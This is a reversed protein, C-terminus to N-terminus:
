YSPGTSNGMAWEPFEAMDFVVSGLTNFLITLMTVCMINMVIGAKMMDIARMKSAAVVIANPPTAVPLMFAYSCCLTSPLMLYLPHLRIAKSMEGLVPLFINAVATNSTVETCYTTLFCIVVVLVWPPLVDLVILQQGIWASLGSEKCAKAMAFGGGNKFIWSLFNLDAPLIYMLFLIFMAPTADKIKVGPIFDAWGMIFQPSRFFWLLVLIIFLTLVSGEHFTMPGLEDYKDQILQKVKKAAEPGGTDMGGRFLRMYLIQLWVWAILINILMGPVNFIMWTAFNVGTADPFLSEFIGMFTLNTGTGTVTGTGGINAAYAVGLFYCITENSPRDANADSSGKRSNVTDVIGEEVVADKDSLSVTNVKPNKTCIVGNSAGNDFFRVKKLEKLVAIVIPAMMATTATNSIWMSLFMTTLMFGLMLLGPSTGITLLVKMAIRQHLNCHEIALAMSLGGIFMMNTEKLYSICVEETDLVGLLPFLAVPLLSTVALPVAETMWFIAMTM